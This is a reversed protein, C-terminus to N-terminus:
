GTPSTDHLSDMTMATTITEDVTMMTMEVLAQVATTM